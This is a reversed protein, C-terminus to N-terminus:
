LDLFHPSVNLNLKLRWQVTSFDYQCSGRDSHLIHFFRENSGKKLMFSDRNTQFGIFQFLTSANIFNEWSGFRRLSDMYKRVGTFTFFTPSGEKYITLRWLMLFDLMKLLGTSKKGFSSVGKYSFKGSCWLVWISLVKLSFSTLLVKNQGLIQDVDSHEYVRSLSFGTSFSFTPLTNNLPSVRNLHWVTTAMMNKM